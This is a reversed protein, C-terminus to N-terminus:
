RYALITRRVYDGSKGSALLVTKLWVTPMWRRVRLAAQYFDRALASRGQWYYENGVSM